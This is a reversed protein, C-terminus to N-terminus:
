SDRSVSSRESSQCISLAFMEAPACLFSCLCVCQQVSGAWKLDSGDTVDTCFEHVCQRTKEHLKVDTWLLWM